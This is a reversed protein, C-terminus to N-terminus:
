MLIVERATCVLMYYYGERAVRVSEFPSVQPLGVEADWCLLGGCRQSGYILTSDASYCAHGVSRIGFLVTGALADIVNVDYGCRNVLIRTGDKNYQVDHVLPLQTLCTFEWSNLDVVMLSRPRIVLLVNDGTPSMCGCYVHSIFAMHRVETLNNDWERLSHDTSATLFRDDVQIAFTVQDTHGVLTRLLSGSRTDFICLNHEIGVFVEEDNGSFAVLHCHAHQYDVDKQSIRCIEKVNEGDSVDWVVV